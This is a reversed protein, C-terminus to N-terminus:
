LIVWRSGSALTVVANSLSVPGASMGSTNAAFTYNAYITQNNIYITSNAVAGSGAATSQVTGDPFTIGSTGSTITTM